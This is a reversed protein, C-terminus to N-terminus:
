YRVMQSLEAKFITETNFYNFIATDYHSSVHFAKNGITETQL